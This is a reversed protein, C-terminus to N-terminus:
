GVIAGHSGHTSLTSHVTRLSMVGIGFFLSSCVEDELQQYIKNGSWKGGKKEFPKMWDYLIQDDGVTFPKRTSKARITTSGVPRVNNTSPGVLHDEPNELNKNRISKEVFKYSYTGPAPNPKIHDVLRYDAKKELHM